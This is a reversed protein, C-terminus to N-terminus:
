NGEKVKVQEDKEFLLIGGQDFIEGDITLTIGKKIDAIEM